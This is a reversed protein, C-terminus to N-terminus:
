IFKACFHKDVHIKSYTEILCMETLRVLKLPVGFETLINYLVEKRVSVYAKKVNISLRHLTNIFALNRANRAVVAAHRM